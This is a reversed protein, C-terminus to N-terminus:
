DWQPNQFKIQGIREEVSSACNNLLLMVALCVTIGIKNM